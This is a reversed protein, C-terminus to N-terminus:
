WVNLYLCDESQLPRMPDPAQMCAAKPATADLTTTWPTVPLASRFRLDGVPPQAYPIGQFVRVGSGEFKGEVKGTTTAVITTANPAGYIGAKVWVGATNYGGCMNKSDECGNEYKCELWSSSDFTSGDSKTGTACKSGEGAKGPVCCAMGVSSASCWEGPVLSTGSYGGCSNPPATCGSQTKCTAFDVTTATRGEADLYQACDAASGTTVGTLPDTHTPTTDTNCRGPACCHGILAPNVDPDDPTAAYVVGVALLACIM